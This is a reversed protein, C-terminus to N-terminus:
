QTRFAYVTSLLISGPVEDKGVQISDNSKSERYRLFRPPGSFDVFTRFGHKQLLAVLSEVRNEIHHVEVVIQRIKPWDASEIGQLVDWEFKEVDIKLLDISQINHESIVSSITRISCQEVVRQFVQPDCSGLFATKIIADEADPSLSDFSSLLSYQPYFSFEATYNSKGLGFNGLVTNKPCHEQVNRELIAFLQTSPEFAFLNVDKQTHRSCFLSFMGINSGVDFVTDGKRLQVGHLLYESSQFIGAHLFEAEDQNLCYVALDDALLVQATNDM